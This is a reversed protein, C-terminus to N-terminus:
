EYNVYLVVKRHYANDFSTWNMTYSSLKVLLSALVRRGSPTVRSDPYLTRRVHKGFVKKMRKQDDRLKQILQMDQSRKMNKCKQDHRLKDSNLKMARSQM